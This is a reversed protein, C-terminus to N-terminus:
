RGFRHLDPINCFGDYYQPQIEFPYGQAKLAEIALAADCDCDLFLLGGLVYSSRSIESLIGLQTALSRPFELWGHAPDSHMTLSVITKNPRRM